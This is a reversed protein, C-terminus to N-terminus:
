LFKIKFILADDSDEFGIYLKSKEHSRISVLGKTHSDVWFLMEAYNDPHNCSLVIKFKKDFTPIVETSAVEVVPDKKFLNRIRQIMSLHPETKVM